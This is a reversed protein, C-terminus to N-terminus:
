TEEAKLLWEFVEEETLYGKVTDLWESEFLKNFLRTEIDFFAIEFLGQSYGYTGPGRVVSMMLNDTVIVRWRDMVLQPDKSSYGFDEHSHDVLYERGNVKLVNIGTEMPLLKPPNM